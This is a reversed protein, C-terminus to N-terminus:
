CSFISHVLMANIRSETRKSCECSCVATIANYLLKLEEYLIIWPLALSCNQMNKINHNITM